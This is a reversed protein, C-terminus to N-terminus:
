YPLRERVAAPSSAFNSPYVHHMSRYSSTADAASKGATGCRTGIWLLETILYGGDKAEATLGVAIESESWRAAGLIGAFNTSYRLRVGVSPAPLTHLTIQISDSGSTPSSVIALAEKGPLATLRAPEAIIRTPDIVLGPEVIAQVATRAAGNEHREDVRWALSLGRTTGHMVPHHVPSTGGPVLLRLSDNRREPYMLFLSNGDRKLAENAKVVALAVEGSAGDIAVATYAAIGISLFRSRWQGQTREVLLVGHRLEGSDAPMAAIVREGQMVVHPALSSLPYVKHPLPVREVAGWGALSLTAFLLTGRDTPGGGPGPKAAHVLVGWSGAGLAVARVAMPQLDGMAFRPFTRTTGSRQRIVALVRNPQPVDFVKQDNRVFEASYQGAVLLEGDRAIFADPSMYLLHGRENRLVDRRAVSAACYRGDVVPQADGVASALLLAM